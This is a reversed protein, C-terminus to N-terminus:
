RRKVKILKTGLRAKDKVKRLEHKEFNFGESFILKENGNRKKLNPLLNLSEVRSM